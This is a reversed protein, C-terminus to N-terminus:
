AAEAPRRGVTLAALAIRATRWPTVLLLSLSLAVAAEKTPHTTLTSPARRLGVPSAPRRARM